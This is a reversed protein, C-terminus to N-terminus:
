YNLAMIQGNVWQFYTKPYTTNRAYTAYDNKCQIKWTNFDMGNLSFRVAIYLTQLDEESPNFIDDKTKM